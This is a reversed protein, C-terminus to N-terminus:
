EEPGRDLAQGPGTGSWALALAPRVASSVQVVDLVMGASVTGFGALLFPVLIQLAMALASEKPMNHVGSGPGEDQDQDEDERGDTEEASLRREALMPDTESFAGDAPDPSTASARSARELLRRGEGHSLEPRYGGHLPAAEPGLDALALREEQLKCYGTPVMTHFLSSLWGSLLPRLPLALGSGLLDGVEARLRPVSM